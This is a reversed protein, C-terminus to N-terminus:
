APVSIVNRQFHQVCEEKSQFCEQILFTGYEEQKLTEDLATKFDDYVGLIQRDKLALFKHGYQKYLGEMNQLFYEYDQNQM